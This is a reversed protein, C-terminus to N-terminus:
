QAAALPTSFEDLLAKADMLDPTGFGETFANYIPALLAEAEPDRRQDRWLRALSTAARLELLKADQSRALELATTFAQEALAERSANPDALAIIGTLRHLEAALIAEETEAIDALAVRATAFADDIKSDFLLQVRIQVIWIISLFYRYGASLWESLCAEIEVLGVDRDGKLAKLYAINVRALRHFHLMKFKQAHELLRASLVDISGRDDILMAYALGMAIVWATTGPHALEKELAFAKQRSREAQDPLGLLLLTLAMNIYAFAQPDYVYAFRLRASRGPDQAIIKEFHPLAERLLGLSMNCGALARDGIITLEGDPRRSMELALSLATKLESRSFHDVYRYFLLLM